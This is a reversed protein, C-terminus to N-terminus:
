LRHINGCVPMNDCNRPRIYAARLICLIQLPQRKENRHRVRSVRNIYVRQSGIVGFVTYTKIGVAASPCIAVGRGFFVNGFRRQGIAAIYFLIAKIKRAPAFQAINRSFAIINNRRINRTIHGVTSLPNCGVRVPFKVIKVEVGCVILKQFAPSVPLPGRFVAFNRKIGVRAM